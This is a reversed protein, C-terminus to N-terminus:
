GDACHDEVADLSELFEQALAAILVHGGGDGLPGHKEV